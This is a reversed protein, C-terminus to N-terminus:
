RRFRVPLRGGIAPVHPPAASPAAGDARGFGREFGTFGGQPFRHSAVTPERSRRRLLKYVAGPLAHRAPRSTRRGQLPMEVRQTAEAYQRAGPRPVDRNGYFPLHPPAVLTAAVIDVLSTAPAAVGAIPYLDIVDM